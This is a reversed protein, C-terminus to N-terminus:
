VLNPKIESIGKVHYKNKLVELRANRDDPLSDIDIKGRKSKIHETYIMEDNVTMMSSFNAVIVENIVDTGNLITVGDVDDYISLDRDDEVLRLEISPTIDMNQWGNCRLHKDRPNINGARDGTNPDWEVLLARKNMKDEREILGYGAM